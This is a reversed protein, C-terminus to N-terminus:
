EFSSFCKSMEEARDGILDEPEEMMKCISVAAGRSRDTQPLHPLKEMTCTNARDEPVERKMRNLFEVSHSLM